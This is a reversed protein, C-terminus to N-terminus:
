DDDEDPIAWKFEESMLTQGGRIVIRDDATIGTQVLWGQEVRTADALPMRVFLHDGHRLYVWPESAYWVVAADPILLGTQSDASEQVWAFLRSGPPFRASDFLYYYSEGHLENDIRGARDLYRAERASDRRNSDSIYVKQGSGFLSKGRPLSVQVLATEHNSMQQFLSQADEDFLIRALEGGWRTRIDLLMNELRTTSAQLESAKLNRDARHRELERTSLSKSRHLAEARKLIRNREFLDTELIKIEAQLNQYTAKANVLPVPDLVMAYAKFEPTVSMTEPTDFELGATEIVDQSIRIAKHGNVIEIREGAEGAGDEDDDGDADEETAAGHPWLDSVIGPVATDDEGVFRNYLFLLLVAVIALLLSKVLLNM